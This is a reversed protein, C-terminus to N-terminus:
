IVPLEPAARTSLLRAGSETVVINEEHVMIRGDGYGLSPELTLVMNPELVTEDFAAHSPWETLQMGLGHGLRGVDGGQDDMEAIVSRMAQFLERCTAGPRAAAVGAETARWLVDYARRSLDDAHGIAYNRDFDCFYGDWSAGTDLMLIDGAQLPRRTPPSIVDHYGGQDAGGVLYPVDDAGQALAERRFARFLEELPLGEHAMAPVQAFTRSGIACIHALKEIEAESKVMRLSRILGTADAVKLGPLGAMLREYDGLPMRLSTEHGKMVGITDGRAALSSLLETLLSLGDDAPAPASWTRIDDIWTRRMLAAGIEPIVAVPKGEAPVFLFWPRTPSQWFLTHFGSFYRVEPETMLLLGSLQRDAMLSQARRTRAAFEAEPFGREPTESM